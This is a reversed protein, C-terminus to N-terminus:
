SSPSIKCAAKALNHAERNAKRPCYYVGEVSPDKILCRARLINDEEIGKYGNESIIAHIAELSDSFIRVRGDKMALWCEVGKIIAQLEANMITGPAKLPNGEMVVKKHNNDKLIFRYSYRNLSNNFAADTHISHCNDGPDVNKLSYRITQDANNIRDAEAIAKFVRHINDSWHDLTFSDRTLKGKNHITNCRDKWIGWTRM